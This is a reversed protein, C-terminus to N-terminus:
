CIYENILQKLKPSHKKNWTSNWDGKELAARLMEPKYYGQEMTHFEMEDYNKGDFIHGKLSIMFHTASLNHADYEKGKVVNLYNKIKSKITKNNSLVLIKPKYGLEVLRKYCYYTFIGCGGRNITPYCKAIKPILRKEIQELIPLPKSKKVFIM